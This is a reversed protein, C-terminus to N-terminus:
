ARERARHSAVDSLGEKCGLFAPGIGGRLREFAKAAGAYEFNYSRVVAIRPPGNVCHTKLISDINQVYKLLFGSSANGCRRPLDSQNFLPEGFGLPVM